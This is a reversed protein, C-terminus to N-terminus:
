DMEPELFGPPWNILFGNEDYKSFSIKTSVASPEKEFLVVNVDEPNLEQGAIRHGIRNVIVESHTEIILRLEIKNAKALKTAAIFVDALKAQLCPHLHLEPQEIAFIIPLSSAIDINDYLPIRLLHHNKLDYGKSILFWLQILIPLIQSYGFGTDALNFEEGAALDKMNLSIHGGSSVAHLTFGFHEETWNEFNNQEALTLNKLFMALNQGNSDVEDLPLNRVRYYREAAARMPKIYRINSVFIDFYLELKELLDILRIATRNRDDSGSLETRLNKFGVNIRPLFHGIKEDFLEGNMDDLVNFSDIQFTRVKWDNDFEIKAQHDGYSLLCAKTLTREGTKDRGLRLTLWINLEELNFTVNEFNIYKSDEQLVPVSEELTMRFHFSMEQKENKRGLAEQFSGFDVLRGYWSIPGETRAEISQRLLPFFRLFSSKGSSNQGVLLTLPKLEVFGTDTLSRLNEIRIADM